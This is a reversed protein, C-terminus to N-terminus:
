QKDIVNELELDFSSNWHISDHREAEDIDKTIKLPNLTKEEIPTEVVVVETILDLNVFEKDIVNELELDYSSNWRISDHVAVEPVKKKEISPSAPPTTINLLNTDIIPTELM